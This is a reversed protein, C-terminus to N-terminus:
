QLFLYDADDTSVMGPETVGAIEPLIVAVSAGSRDAIQAPIGGKWAHGNGTVIVMVHDPSKELFDIANIAMINDWVLQAECFYTFNLNGHAHAGYARKIFNMYTKDVRCAVDGLKGRQEDTLSSFGKRAVQSTIARSVNLGAVPILNDRVYRLIPAYLDWDFNWNDYYVRVFESEPMKGTTWDDLDGQSDSRFMEMGVAVKAGAEYLARIVALQNEHHAESTHHEGVLIIRDEKLTSVAKTLPVTENSDIDFLRGEEGAAMSLAAAAVLLAAGLWLIRKKM